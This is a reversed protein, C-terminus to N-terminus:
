IAKKVESEEQKNGTYLFILEKTHQDESRYGSAM